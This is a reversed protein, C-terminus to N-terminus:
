KEVAADREKPAVSSSPPLAGNTVTPTAPIETKATTDPVPAPEKSKKEPEAAQAKPLNDGHPEAKKETSPAPLSMRAAPESLMAIEDAATSTRHSFVTAWAQEHNASERVNTKLMQSEITDVQALVNGCADVIPAGSSGPSYACSVNLSHVPKGDRHTQLLRSVAGDTFVFYHSGPHGLCYVPEGVRPDTRLPLPDLKAGALHLLVTDATRNAGVIRDVAFVHGHIDAAIAYAERMDEPKFELVHCCTSIVDPAVAFGTGGQLHWNNCHHCLYYFGVFVVSRSLHDYITASDLPTKAPAPMELSAGDLKQEALQFPTFLNGAKQLSTAQARLTREFHEQDFYEVGFLSPSLAALVCALSLIRVARRSRARLSARVSSYSMPLAGLTRVSTGPTFRFIRTRGCCRSRAGM